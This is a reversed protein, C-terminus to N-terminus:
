VSLYGLQGIRQVIIPALGESAEDLLLVGPNGM